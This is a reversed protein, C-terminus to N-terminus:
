ASNSYAPTDCIAYNGLTGSGIATQCGYFDTKANVSGQSGSFIECLDGINRALLITTTTMPMATTATTAAAAQAHRRRTATAKRM